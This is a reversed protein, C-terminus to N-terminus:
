RQKKGRWLGHFGTLIREDSGSWNGILNKKRTTNDM